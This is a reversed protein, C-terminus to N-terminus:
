NENRKLYNQIEEAVVVVDEESMRQDIPLPLLHETFDVEVCHKCACWDLVNEWYKPVFIRSAALHERLGNCKSYFPYAMPVVDEEIPFFVENSERLLRDMLKFNLKRRTAIACYDLNRAISHTLTSMRMIPLDGLVKENELYDAYGSEAGFELRKSLHSMRASSYDLPLDPCDENWIYAFAGDPVGFFKRMSYFSDVGELPKSYFAQTSDVVLRECHRSLQKAVGGTLGFYNTYLLFEDSGIKSCDFIPEFKDDIDYFEYEVDLHRFASLVADCTYYPIYGKKYQRLKMILEFANRGTNLPIAEDHFVSQHSVEFGFYGGIADRKM